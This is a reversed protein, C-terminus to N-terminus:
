NDFLVEWKEKNLPRLCFIPRDPVRYLLLFLLAHQQMADLFNNSPHNNDKLQGLRTKLPLNHFHLFLM